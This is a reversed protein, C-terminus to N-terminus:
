AGRMPMIVAQPFDTGSPMILLPSMPGSFLLEVQASGLNSLAQLLYEASFRMPDPAGIIEATVRDRAEIGQMPIAASLTFGYNDETVAM